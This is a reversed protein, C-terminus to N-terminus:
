ERMMEARGVGEHDLEQDDILDVVVRRLTGTFANPSAYHSVPSGRDLGIDLGSWSVMLTFINDPGTESTFRYHSFKGTSVDLRSLGGNRTGAWVSGDTDIVHCDHKRDAWDIGIFLSPTQNLIPTKDSM